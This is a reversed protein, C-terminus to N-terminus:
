TGEPAKEGGLVADPATAAELEATSMPKARSADEKALRKNEAECAARAEKTDCLRIEIGPGGHGPSMGPPLIDFWQWKRASVDLMEGSKGERMRFNGSTSRVMYM